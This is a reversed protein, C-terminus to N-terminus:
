NEFLFFKGGGYNMWRYYPGYPFLRKYYLPLLDPLTNQDYSNDEPMKSKEASLNEFSYQYFSLIFFYIKYSQNEM